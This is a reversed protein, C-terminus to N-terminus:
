RKIEVKHLRYEKDQNSWKLVNHMGDKLLSGILMNPIASASLLIYDTGQIYEILKKRLDWRILNNKDLLAPEAKHELTTCWVVQGFKEAKQVDINSIYQTVFVNKDIM